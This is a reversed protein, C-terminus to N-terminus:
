EVEGGLEVIEKNINLIVGELIRTVEGTQVQVNAAGNVSINCTAPPDVPLAVRNGSSDTTLKPIPKTILRYIDVVQRRRQYTKILKEAEHQKM